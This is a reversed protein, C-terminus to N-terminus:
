FLQIQNPPREATVSTKSLYCEMRAYQKDTFRLIRVQGDPPLCAKVRAAHVTANEESPCPRSYVSYQIRDFGDKILDKRFSTAAKRQRKTLVPLDFMVVIWMARM